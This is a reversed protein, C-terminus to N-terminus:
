RQRITTLVGHRDCFISKDFSKALPPTTIGGAVRKKRDTRTAISALAIATVAAPLSGALLLQPCRAASILCRRCTPVIVALTLLGVPSTSTLGAHRMLTRSQDGGRGLRSWGAEGSTDNATVLITPDVGE